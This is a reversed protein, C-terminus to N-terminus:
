LMYTVDSGHTPYAFITQQLSDTTAGSQIALAFVNILEDAEPGLVHAGLIRGEGEEILVKFGSCDEAVRRSSYWSSTEERHIRFRLDSEQAAHESMGVAALPPVTFVVSPVPPQGVKRNNGKLLNSAAITGEYVAVPTLPPLGSAAADGAAYVAPNSVSQLYENVKVGRKEAEVGAASLNLDDIDAVRGAGHVVMDAQFERKGAETSACVFLHDDREEIAKVESRLQVDVGLRRTKRVLQDVLDPDFRELPREGSHLIVVEAGCRVAVHAFEFSIYGGGVFVIRKPLSDLELFQESTTLYQEGPINLKQPKAGAAVLIRRGELLADGVELETTSTFRAVGHFTVIGSEAFRKEKEVPVPDTFTRKFRMLESWEIRANASLIGKGEMRRVWDILAAAGVLVKKPDCGRLACTGGFPRCDVVAVSWGAARCQSAATSAASGTGIVVLDFKRKVAM